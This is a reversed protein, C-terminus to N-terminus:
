PNARDEALPRDARRELEARLLAIERVLATIQHQLDVFKTYYHLSIFLLTVQVLYGVLDVGRGVGVWGAVITTADPFLVALAAVVLIAFVLVIHVRLRNRRAFGLYGIAALASLMILRIIM